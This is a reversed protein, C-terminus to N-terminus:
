EKTYPVGVSAPVRSRGVVGAVVVITALFPLMRLFESPIGTNLLTLKGELSEAFGFVLAAGMLGVPHYRGFILAALAIFGRGDTPNESFNGVSGVTFFAGGLGAIMGGVIVNKYRTGEVSIGVTDAALPHEGVARARLGWRTHFILYTLYVVLAMAAYVFLNHEFLIRGLMPIDHLLPIKWQGVVSADNLEPNQTMIRGALFSTLGLAFINLTVGIIIQDVQYKIALVALIWAMGGGAAVAFVIGFWSGITSGVLAAVFAGTLMMGEIGINVVGSRECMLGSLGGLTLPVAAVVTAELMQVLSFSTGSAAWGLFAFVFLFVVLGLVANTRSGFGQRLQRGGLGLLVVGIILSAVAPNFTLDPFSEHFRDGRQTLRFTSDGQTDLAFVLLVIAAFVIYAIGFARARLREGPAIDTQSM